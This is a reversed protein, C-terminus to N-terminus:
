ERNPSLPRHHSNGETYIRSAGIGHCVSQCLNAVGRIALVNRQSNKPTDRPSFRAAAGSTTVSKWEYPEAGGGNHVSPLRLGATVEGVGGVRHKRGTSNSSPGGPGTLASLRRPQRLDAVVPQFGTQWSLRLAQRGSRNPTSPVRQIESSRVIFQLILSTLVPISQKFQISAPKDCLSHRDM